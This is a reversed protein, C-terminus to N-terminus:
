LPPPPMPELKEFGFHAACAPWQNARSVEGKGIWEETQAVRDIAEELATVSTPMGAQEGIYDMVSKSKGDYAIAIEYTPNDTVEAVYEDNLAFFDAAHFQEVLSSIGANDVQRTRAGVEKVFHLGCYTATGDGRIEVGYMPCTGFCASRVLTIRLSSMDKIGSPDDSPAPQACAVLAMILAVATLRLM